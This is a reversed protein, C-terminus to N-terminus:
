MEVNNEMFLDSIIHSKSNRVSSPFTQVESSQKVTFKSSNPSPSLTWASIPCISMCYACNTLQKRLIQYPSHFIGFLVKLDEYAQFCTSILSDEFLNLRSMNESLILLSSYESLPLGATNEQPNLSSIEILNLKNRIKQFYEQVEPGTHQEQFLPDDFDSLFKLFRKAVEM